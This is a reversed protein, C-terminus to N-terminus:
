ISGLLVRQNDGWMEVSVIDSDLHETTAGRLDGLASLSRESFMLSSIGGKGSGHGLRRRDKSINGGVEM